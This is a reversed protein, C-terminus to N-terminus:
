YRTVSDNSSNSIERAPSVPKHTGKKVICLILQYLLAPFLHPTV